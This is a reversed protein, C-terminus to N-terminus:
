YNVWRYDSTPMNYCKILLSLYYFVGQGPRGLPGNDICRPLATSVKRSEFPKFPALRTLCM